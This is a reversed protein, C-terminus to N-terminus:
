QNAMSSEPLQKAQKKVFLLQMLFHLNNSQEPDKKTEKDSNNSSM